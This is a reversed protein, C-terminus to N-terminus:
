VPQSGANVSTRDSPEDPGGVGWSVGFLRAPRSGPNRWDHMTAQQIVVDGADLAVEGTELILMLPERVLIVDISRTKHLGIAAGSSAGDAQRHDAPPFTVAIIKVHGPDPEFGMLKGRGVVWSPAQSVDAEWVGMGEVPEVSAVTSRGEADLGTVVRKM